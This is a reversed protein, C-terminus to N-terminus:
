RLQRHGPLHFSAAGPAPRTGLDTWRAKAGLSGCRVKAEAGLVRLPGQSRTPAQLQEQRASLM